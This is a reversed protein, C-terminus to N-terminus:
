RGGDSAGERKPKPGPKPPAEFRELHGGEILAEVNTGPMLDAATIQVGPVHRVLEANVVNDALVTYTALGDTVGAM